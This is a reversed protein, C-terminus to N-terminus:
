GITATGDSNITVNAPTTLCEPDVGLQEPTKALMKCVALIHSKNVTAIGFFLAASAGMQECIEAPTAEESKWFARWWDCHQGIRRRCEADVLRLMDAAIREAVPPKTEPIEPFISDVM